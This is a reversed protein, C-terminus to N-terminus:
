MALVIVPAYGERYLAIARTAREGEEDGGLVATADARTPSQGPAELWDVRPKM